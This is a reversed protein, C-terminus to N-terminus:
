CKPCMRNQGQGIIELAKNYRNSDSSMMFAQLPWTVDEVEVIGKKRDKRSDTCEQTNPEPASHSLVIPNLYMGNMMYFDELFLNRLNLYRLNAFLMVLIM